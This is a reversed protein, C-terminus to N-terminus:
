RRLEAISVVRTELDPVPLKTRSRRFLLVGERHGRRGDLYRANAIGIADCWNRIAPQNVPGRAQRPAGRQGVYGLTQRVLEDDAHNM